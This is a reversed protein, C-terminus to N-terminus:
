RHLPSGLRRGIPWCDGVRCGKSADAWGDAAVKQVVLVRDVEYDFFSYGPGPIVEVDRPVGASALVGERYELDSHGADPGAPPGEARHVVLFEEFHSPLLVEVQVLVHPHFVFVPYEAPDLRLELTRGWM